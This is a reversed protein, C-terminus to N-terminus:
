IESIEKATWGAIFAAMEAYTVKPNFAGYLGGLGAGIAGGAIFDAQKIRADATLCGLDFANITQAM